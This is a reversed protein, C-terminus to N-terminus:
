AITVASLINVYLILCCLREQLFSEGNSKLLLAAHRGLHIYTGNYVLYMCLMTTSYINKYYIATDYLKVHIANFNWSTRQLYVASNKKGLYMYCNSHTRCTTVIELINHNHSQQM